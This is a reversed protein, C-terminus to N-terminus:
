RSGCIFDLYTYMFGPKSGLRPEGSFYVLKELNDVKEQRSSGVNIRTILNLETGVDLRTSSFIGRTHNNYISRTEKLFLHSKKNCVRDKKGDM